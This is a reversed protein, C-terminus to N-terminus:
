QAVKFGQKSAYDSVTSQVADVADDWSTKKSAAQGITTQLQAAVYDNFPNWDFTGVGNYAPVFIQNVQQGGFFEYKKQQFYTWDLIPKVTPFLYAQDIGIKWAQQDTGFIEKAVEAAQEPHKTQDTVAFTSGGWDGQAHGGASWQPLPAARWKGSTTKAVSQLYGPGWGAALYTLYKGSTLGNYFDTTGFPKTDALGSGVMEQWYSMVQKTAPNNISLGLNPLNSASYTYPRAGAQWTLGTMFGADNTGFDTIFAKPNAAKLSQADQKFEDWTTPVKLHYKTFLDQRYLLGMPGADVPVAYVKDGDSVQKWAWDAYNAKLDGAGYKGLDVLHKMLEITPLEQFEIMAVDPAGKGAKLATQLKTYEDGGTGAVTWDVKVDKHTANFHDVVGKFAPYWAWVKIHVPGSGGDGGGGGSSGSSCAAVLAVAALTACAVALRRGKWGIRQQSQNM